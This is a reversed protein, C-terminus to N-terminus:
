ASEDMLLDDIEVNKVITPEMRKGETKGGRAVTGKTGSLLKQLRAQTAPTIINGLESKKDLPGKPHPWFSDYAKLIASVLSDHQGHPM